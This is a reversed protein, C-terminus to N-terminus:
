DPIWDNLGRIYFYFFRLNIIEMHIWVSIRNNKHYIAYRAYAKEVYFTAIKNHLIYTFKLIM